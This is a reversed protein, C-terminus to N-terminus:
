RNRVTIWMDPATVVIGCGNREPTPLKEGKELVFNFQQVLATIILFLMNRAFTEGACLRKGAGFPLSFDKKLSLHGQEDLFREPRFNRPDGWIDEDDHFATLTPFIITGEPVRFGKLETDVMAVHPVDTAVLTEIRLIERVAAECLHLNQRDDLCPFRGNGVVNDIEYQMKEIVEPHLLAYQLFMAIQFGIATIAPFAFDVLSLTFQEVSFSSETGKLRMEKIYLDIFNRENNEDYTDLHHSIIKQFFVHMEMSVKRLESFKTMGPFIHVLWPAVGMMRGYIDGVRQLITSSKALELLDKQESRPFRINCMVHLFCNTTFPMFIFPALFKNGEPKSFEEEHPYKPGNKMIDIMDRIEENIVLELEQFRRGFGYDRLHRLIFRRQEKWM